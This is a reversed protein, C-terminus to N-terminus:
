TRPSRRDTGGTLLGQRGEACVQGASNQVSPSHTLAAPRNELQVKFGTTQLPEWAPPLTSQAMTLSHPQLERGHPAPTREM